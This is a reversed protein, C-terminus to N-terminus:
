EMGHPQAFFPFKQGSLEPDTKIVRKLAQAERGRLIFADGTGLTVEINLEGAEDKSEIATKLNRLDLPCGRIMVIHAM